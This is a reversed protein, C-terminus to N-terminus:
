VKHRRRKCARDDGTNHAKWDYIPRGNKLWAYEVDPIGFAECTWTLDDNEDIHKDGISITFAPRAQISLVVSGTISVRDNHARCVYEGQDEVRVRRLILVRQHNTIIAGITSNAFFSM